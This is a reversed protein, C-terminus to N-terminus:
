PFYNDPDYDRMPTGWPRRLLIKRRLEEYDPNGPGWSPRQASRHSKSKSASPTPSAKPTSVLPIIAIERNAKFLGKEPIVIAFLKKTFEEPVEFVVVAKKFIGPHLERLIFDSSVANTGRSDPSYERGELDRLRFDNADTEATQKGDNRILYNVVLYKAGESPKQRLFESGVAKTFLASTVKYSFNGLKFEENLSAPFSQQDSSPTTEPSAAPQSAVDPASADSGTTASDPLSSDAESLALYHQALAHNQEAAKRFSAIAETGDKSVGQGKAYCIGLTYQAQAYNQDAAKRFWKVAEVYDKAMGNGNYYCAGLKYQGEALNQDAAKRFWKVAEVYDKAVGQGTAYSVGLNHQADAHNQEAAKRYWQVAEVEDKAVGYGRFYCWGLVAQAQAFGQKAAKRFWKVAEAFDKGVGNGKYYRIGLQYEAERDGTEAKAKIDAFKLPPTPTPSAVMRTDFAEYPRNPYDSLSPLPQKEFPMQIDHHISARRNAEARAPNTILLWLGKARIPEKIAFTAILAVPIAVFAGAKLLAKKNM